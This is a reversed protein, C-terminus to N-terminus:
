HGFRSHPTNIFVTLSTRFNILSLSAKKEAIFVAVEAPSLNEPYSEDVDKLVVKFDVGMLTLLEQRRPSKSALILQM